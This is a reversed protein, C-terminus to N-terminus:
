LLLLGLTLVAAAGGAIAAIRPWVASERDAAAEAVLAAEERELDEGLKFWTLTRERFRADESARYAVAQDVPPMAEHAAVIGTPLRFARVRHIPADPVDIHPLAGNSLLWKSDHM